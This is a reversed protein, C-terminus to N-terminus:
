NDLVSLSPGRLGSIFKISLQPVVNSKQFFALLFSMAKLLFICGLSSQRLSLRSWLSLPGSYTHVCGGRAPQELTVAMLTSFGTEQQNNQAACGGEAGDGARRPCTSSSQHHSYSALWQWWCNSTPHSSLLTGMPQRCPCAADGNSELCTCM